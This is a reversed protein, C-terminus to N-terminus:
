SGYSSRRKNETKIAELDYYHNHNDFFVQIVSDGLDPRAASPLEACRVFYEVSLAASLEPRNECLWGVLREVRQRSGKTFNHTDDPLGKFLTAALSGFSTPDVDAIARNPFGLARIVEPVALREFAKGNFEVEVASAVRLALRQVQLDIEGPDVIMRDYDDKFCEPMSASIELRVKAAKRDLRGNLRYRCETDVPRFASMEESPVVADALRRGEGDFQALCITNAFPYKSRNRIDFEFVITKGEADPPVETSIGFSPHRVNGGHLRIRAPLWEVRGGNDAEWRDKESIRLPEGFLNEVRSSDGVRFKGPLNAVFKLEKTGDPVSFRLIYEESNMQSKLVHAALEKWGDSILARVGFARLRDVKTKGLFTSRNFLLELPSSVDMTADFPIEFEREPPPPAVAGATLDYLQKTPTVSLNLRGVECLTCVVYRDNCVFQPHPDPHLNSPNDRQAYAGHPSHILIRKGNSQNSFWVNWPVGRYWGEAPQDFVVGARDDSQFAHGAYVPVLCEQLGTKLDHQYVGNCCWYFSTGDASFNEHTAYGGEIPAYNIFDYGPHWTWLRYCYDDYAIPTRMLKTREKNWRHKEWSFEWAGLAERDNAPNLQGHNSAFEADVIGWKEFTGTDGDVLGIMHTRNINADCLFKKRDRTATLHTHFQVWANTIRPTLEPPLGCVPIEKKPDTKLERKFVGRKDMYVIQDNKVDIFPIQGGIGPMIIIEDKAFDVVAKERTGTNISVHKGDKEAFEDESVDFVLFRGDDTMSKATFYISQQNHGVLGPKLIYSVVGSIKDVNKVFLNSTEPTTECRCVAVASLALVVLLYVTRTM